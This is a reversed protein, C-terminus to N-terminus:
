RMIIGDCVKLAVQTWRFCIAKDYGYKKCVYEMMATRKRCEDEIAAGATNVEELMNMDEQDLGDLLVDEEFEIESFKDTKKKNTGTFMVVLGVIAVIAVIAILYSSTNDKKM